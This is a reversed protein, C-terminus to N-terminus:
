GTTMSEEESGQRLDSRRPVFRFDPLSAFATPWVGMPLAAELRQQLSAM